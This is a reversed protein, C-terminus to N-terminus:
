SSVGQNLITAVDIPDKKQLKYTGKTYIVDYLYLNGLRPFATVKGPFSFAAGFGTDFSKTANIQSAVTAATISGSMKNIVQEVLVHVASWAHQTHVDQINELRAFKDGAKAQAAMEKVFQKLTSACKGPCSKLISKSAPPIMSPYVIGEASDGLKSLADPTFGVYGYKFNAGAAKAAQIFQVAAGESTSFMVSDAGSDKAAAVFPSMDAVVGSVGRNGAFTIGAAKAGTKTYGITTASTANDLNVLFVSKAGANKLAQPVYTYVATSGAILPYTLPSTIDNGGIPYGGFNPIGAAQLVPLIAPSGQVSFSGVVSVVNQSVFTRACDAADNPNEKPDCFILELPQHDPGVGGAKNIARVAAQAASLEYPFSLGVTNAAIPAYLGIKISTGKAKAAGAPTSAGVTAMATAVCVLAVIVGRRATRRRVKM